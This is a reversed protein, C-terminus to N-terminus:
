RRDNDPAPPDIVRYEAEVFTDDRRHLGAKRTLWWIRVYIILGAILALGILAALVIGGILVAGIFLLIGAVSWLARVFPNSPPSTRSLNIRIYRM